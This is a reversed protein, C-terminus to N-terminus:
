ALVQHLSMCTEQKGRFNTHVMYARSLQDTPDHEGPPRWGSQGRYDKVGETTSYGPRWLSLGSPFMWNLSETEAYHKGTPRVSMGM